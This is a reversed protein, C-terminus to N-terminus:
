GGTVPPFVAIERVNGLPTELQAHVQDLAVRIVRENEFAREYESGKSKLWSILDGVTVVSGPVVLEEGARGIKERVWAFYLFKCTQSLQQSGSHSSTEM